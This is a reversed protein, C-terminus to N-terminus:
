LKYNIARLNSMSYIFDIHGNQDDDKEFEEAQMDVGEKSKMVEEYLEIENKESINEM